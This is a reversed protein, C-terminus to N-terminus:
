KSIELMFKTGESSSSELRIDAGIEHLMSRVQYLGLGSGDTTTFGLDFVKGQMSIPIGAGDDSYLINLLGNRLSVVKININKSKAKRSNSILNDIVISIELPRFNRIFSIEMQNEWTFGILNKNDLTRIMGNCVNLIYQSIYGCIDESITAAELSFNAKTAFKTTTSIKRAQLSIKDLVELILDETLPKGSKIRRTVNKIYNEITGAAIGIHHHLSIINALDQSVVSQLFINQTAREEESIRALAADSEAKRAREAEERAQEEARQRANRELAAEKEAEARAQNIQDLRKQAKKAEALLSKDNSESAIREFNRLLNNLSKESLENLLNIVKPDYRIDVISDSQTISEILSVIKSRIEAEGSIQEEFTEKLNGFRLIDVAYKELRRLALLSFMEKLAFYAKNKILGGDRSSAEQFDDNNGIEIRGILDRSGLFRSYGQSKRSDIELSDDGLEGFPYIRFGNKYLLVSGFVRPVVGMHKTFFQKAAANLYFLTIAVNDLHKDDYKLTNKEKVEYILVGRDELRSYIHSGGDVIKVELQVTKLGLNEFLFNNIPGNVISWPEDHSARGDISEESPVQLNILFNNSDNEQNPNILKELSRKLKLLKTRDWEERLLSIELVTGSDIEYPSKDIKVYEVPIDVFERKADSEFDEWEVFLANVHHENKRKSYIKLSSGLKDCSFRGIGKAGAHIRRSEIKDRYDETGDKKASYAVFLWKNELDGLSMGKGNDKIILKAHDTGLDNFIVDVQTANADFSNKVLEFVAIFDNTILEKGIINKLASSVKFLKQTSM